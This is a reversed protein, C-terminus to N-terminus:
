LHTNPLLADYDNSQVTLKWNRFRLKNYICWIPIIFISAAVMEIPAIYIRYM